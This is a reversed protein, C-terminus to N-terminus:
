ILVGYCLIDYLIMFFSFFLFYFFEILFNKKNYWDTHYVISNKLMLKVGRQKHCVNTQFEHLMNSM